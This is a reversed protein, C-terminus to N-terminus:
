EILNLKKLEAQLQVPGKFDLVSIGLQDAVQLSHQDDDVFLIEEPKVALQDVVAQYFELSPKCHGITFSNIVRDFLGEVGLYDLKQQLYGIDNTILGVKCNQKLNIIINRVEEKVQGSYYYDDAFEELQEKTLDVEGAIWEIFEALSLQGALLLEYKDSFIKARLKEVNWARQQQYHQFVTEFGTDIVVGGLDFFCIKIM